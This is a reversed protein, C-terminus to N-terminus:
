GWLANYFVSAGLGIVGWMLFALAIALSWGQARPLREIDDVALSSESRAQPAFPVVSNSHEIHVSM